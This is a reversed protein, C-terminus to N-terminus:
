LVPEDGTMKQIRPPEDGLTSPLAGSREVIHEAIREAGGMRRLHSAMQDCGAAFQEPFTLLRQLGSRLDGSSWVGIGMKSLRSANDYQDLQFPTFLMPVCALIGEQCSALGAHTAFVAIRGSNLLERQPVTPAHYVDRSAIDLALTTGLCLRVGEDLCADVVTQVMEMPPQSMRGFAALVVPRDDQYLWSLLLPDQLPGASHTQASGFVTVSPLPIRDNYIAQLGTVLTDCRQCLDSAFPLTEWDRWLLDRNTVYADSGLYWWRTTGLCVDAESAYLGLGVLRARLAQCACDFARYESARVVRQLWALIRGERKRFQLPQLKAPIDKPPEGHWFGGLLEHVFVRTGHKRALGYAVLPAHCQDTLIVSRNAQLHRDLAELDVNLFTSVYSSWYDFSNAGFLRRWLATWATAPHNRLEIDPLRAIRGLSIMNIDSTEPSLGDPCAISVKVGKNILERAIRLLSAWTGAELTAFFVILVEM